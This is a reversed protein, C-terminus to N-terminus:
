VPKGKNPNVLVDLAFYAYNQANKIKKNDPLSRCNNRRIAYDLCHESNTTATSMHQLEHIMVMSRSMRADKGQKWEERMQKESNMDSDFFSPCFYVVTTGLVSPENGKATVVAAVVAAECLGSSYIDNPCAYVISDRTVPPGRAVEFPSNERLTFTVARSPKELNELVSRYHNNIVKQKMNANSSGFWTQYAESSEAGPVNLVNITHSAIRRADAIAQNIAHLQPRTCVWDGKAIYFMNDFPERQALRPPPASVRALCPSIIITCSLM